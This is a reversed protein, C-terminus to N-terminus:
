SKVVIEDADIIHVSKIRHPGLHLKSCAKRIAGGATSALVIATDPMYTHQTSSYKVEWAQM